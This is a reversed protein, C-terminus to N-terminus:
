VVKQQSRVPAISDPHLNLLTLTAAMKFSITAAQRAASWGLQNFPEQSRLLARIGWWRLYMYMVMVISLKHHTNMQRNTMTRYNGWPHTINVGTLTHDKNKPSLVIQAHWLIWLESMQNFQTMNSLVIM